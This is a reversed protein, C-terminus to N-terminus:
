LERKDIVLRVFWAYHPESFASFYFNCDKLFFEYQNTEIVHTYVFSNNTILLVPYFIYKVEIFKGFNKM